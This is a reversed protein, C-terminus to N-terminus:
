IYRRMASAMSQLSAPALRNNSATPRPTSNLTTRNKAGPKSSGKPVGPKKRTSSSVVATVGGVVAVGVIIAGIILLTNRQKQTTKQNSTSEAIAKQVAASACTSKVDGLQKIVLSNGPQGQCDFTLKSSKLYNSAKADSGCQQQLYNKIEQKNKSVQAGFNMQPFLTSVSKQDLQQEQLTKAAAEAVNEITCTANANCRQEITGTAGPCDSFTVDMGDIVNKCGGTSSCSTKQTNEINTRYDSLAVSM